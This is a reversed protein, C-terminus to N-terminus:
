QRIGTRVAVTHALHQRNRSHDAFQLRSIGNGNDQDAEQPNKRPRKSEQVELKMDEIM